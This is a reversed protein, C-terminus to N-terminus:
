DVVNQTPPIGPTTTLEAALPSPAATVTAAEGVIITNSTGDVIGAPSPVAPPVDTPVPANNQEPPPVEGIIVTNSSGDTISAVTPAPAAEPETTPAAEPEAPLVEIVNVINAHEADVVAPQIETPGGAAVIGGPHTYMVFQGDATVVGQDALAIWTGDPQQQFLSLPTFPAVPRRLPASVFVGAGPLLGDVEVLSCWWINGLDPPPNFEASLPQVQPGQLIAQIPASIPPVELFNEVVPSGNEALWSAFFEVESTLPQAVTFAVTDVPQNADIWSVQWILTLQGVQNRRIVDFETQRPIFMENFVAEAPLTIEVSVNRMLGTDDPKIITATYRIGQAIPVGRLFINPAILPDTQAQAPVPNLPLVVSLLCLITLIRLRRM